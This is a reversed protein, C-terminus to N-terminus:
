PSTTPVRRTTSGCATRSPSSRCAPKTPTMLRLSRHMFPPPPAHSSPPSLVVTWINALGCPHCISVDDICTEYRRLPLVTGSPVGLGSHCVLGPWPEPPPPAYASVMDVVRQSSIFEFVGDSAIILFSDHPGLYRFELEPEAFVGIREAAAAAAAAPCPCPSLGADGGTSRTICQWHTYRTPYGCSLPTEMMTRSQPELNKIRFLLPAPASHCCLCTGADGISCTFALAQVCGMPPSCGHRAM